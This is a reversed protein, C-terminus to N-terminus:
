GDGEEAQDALAVAEHALVVPHRLDNNPVRPGRRVRSTAEALIACATLPAFYGLHDGVTVHAAGRRDPM